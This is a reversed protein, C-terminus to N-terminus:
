ASKSKKFDTALEVIPRPEGLAFGQVYDVGIETLKDIVATREVHEAIVKKGMIYQINVITNNKQFEERPFRHFM